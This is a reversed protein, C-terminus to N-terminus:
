KIYKKDSNEIAFINEPPTNMPYTNSEAYYVNSATCLLLLLSIVIVTRIINIFRKLKMIKRRINIAM